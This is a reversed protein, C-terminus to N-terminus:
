GSAAGGPETVMPMLSHPIQPVSMWENELPCRAREPPM